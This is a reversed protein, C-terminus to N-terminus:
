RDGYNIIDIVTELFNAARVVEIVRHDM